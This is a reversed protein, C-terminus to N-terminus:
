YVVISSVKDHMYYVCICVWLLGVECILMWEGELLGTPIGMAMDEMVIDMDEMATNQVETGMDMTHTATTMDLAAVKPPGMPTHM